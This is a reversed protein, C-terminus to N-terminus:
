SVCDRDHDMVISLAVCVRTYPPVSLSLSLWVTWDTVGSRRGASLYVV